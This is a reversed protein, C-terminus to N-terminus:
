LSNCAGLSVWIPQGPLTVACLPCRVVLDSHGSKPTFRVHAKASCIDAKSGFRVYARVARFRDPENFHRCGGILVQMSTSVHDAM